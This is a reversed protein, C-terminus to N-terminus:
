KSYLNIISQEDILISVEDRVPFRLAKAKLEKENLELWAPILNKKREEMCGRITEIYKSNPKIQIEDGIKMLYGPRDLKRGNIFIVGHTVLQKAMRKSYTWKLKYVVNDLRRELFQLLIEGTVGKRKRAMEFYKRFQKELMGYFAKVKNKERLQIGYESIKRKRKGRKKVKSKRAISDVPCKSSECRQGKLYLKEESNKCIKCLPKGTKTM